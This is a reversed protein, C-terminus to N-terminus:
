PEPVPKKQNLQAHFSIKFTGAEIKKEVVSPREFNGRYYTFLQFVNM